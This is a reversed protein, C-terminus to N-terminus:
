LFNSGDVMAFGGVGEVDYCIRKCIYHFYFYICVSSFIIGCFGCSWAWFACRLRILHTNPEMKFLWSIKSNLKNKSSNMPRM